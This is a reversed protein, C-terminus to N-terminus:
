EVSEFVARRFGSFYDDQFYSACSYNCNAACFDAGYYGGFGFVWRSAAPYTMKCWCYQGDATTNFEQDTAANSRGFTNNCSAIGLVNGYDDFTVGWQGPGTLGYTDVNKKGGDFNWSGYSSGGTIDASICSSFGIDYQGSPCSLKDLKCVGNVMSYTRNPTCTPESPEGSCSETFTGFADYYTGSPLWCDTKCCDGCRLDALTRHGSDTWINTAPTTPWAAMANIGYIATLIIGLTFINHKRMTCKGRLNRQYFHYMFWPKQVVGDPMWYAAGM